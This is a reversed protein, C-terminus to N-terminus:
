RILKGIAALTQGWEGYVVEALGEVFRAAGPADLIPYQLRIPIGTQIIGHFRDETIAKLNCLGRLGEPGAFRGHGSSSTGGFPLSQNLYFM